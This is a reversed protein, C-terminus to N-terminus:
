ALQGTVTSVSDAVRGSSSILIGEGAAQTPVRGIIGWSLVGILAVGIAVAGLWDLPRTVEFLQDLQEPSSLREVAAARFINKSKATMLLSIGGGRLCPAIIERGVDRGKSPDDDSGM